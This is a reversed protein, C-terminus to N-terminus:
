FTTEKMKCFNDHVSIIGGLSSNRYTTQKMQHALLSAFLNKNSDVGNWLLLHKIWPTIGETRFKTPESNPDWTCQLTTGQAVTCVQLATPVWNPGQTEPTVVNDMVMIYIPLLIGVTRLMLFSIAFIRCYILSRSSPSPYEDIDGDSFNHDTSDMALFEHDHLDRRIEWNGRLYNSLDMFIGDYHVTPPPATYGPKFQQQCIECITNGKENCWRQICARHAYKLSGRCSCPMEMKLDEDEDHCIKCEVLERPSAIDVTWKSSFDELALHSYSESEIAIELTSQSLFWDGTNLFHDGM